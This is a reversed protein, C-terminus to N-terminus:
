GAGKKISLSMWIAFLSMYYVFFSFILLVFLFLKQTIALQM